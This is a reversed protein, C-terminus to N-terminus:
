LCMTFTNSRLFLVLLVTYITTTTYQSIPSDVHSHRAHAIARSCIRGSDAWQIISNGWRENFPEFTCRCSHRENEVHLPMVTIFYVRSYFPRRFFNRCPLPVHCQFWLQMEISINTSITECLVIFYSSTIVKELSRGVLCSAFSITTRLRRYTYKKM